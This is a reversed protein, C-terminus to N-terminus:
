GVRVSKVVDDAITLNLRNEEYEQTLAFEEGNRSEIRVEHGAAQAMEIAETEPLGIMQEILEDVIESGDGSSGDDSASTDPASTDPALTDPTSTDPTSTDPTSTDSSDDDAPDLEVVDDESPPDEETTTSDTGPDLEVVADESESDLGSDLADDSGSGCGGLLVALALM